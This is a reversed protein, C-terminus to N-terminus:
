GEKIAALKVGECRQLVASRVGRPLTMLRRADWKLYDTLTWVSQCKLCIMDDPYDNKTEYEHHCRKTM